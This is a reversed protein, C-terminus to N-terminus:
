VQGRRYRDPAAAFAAVCELSCFSWTTEAHTLSGAATGSPVPMRCVPDVALLQTATLQVLGAPIPEAVGRLLQLGLPQALLGAARVAATVAESHILQGGAALECLRAAVNVTHGLYDTGHEAFLRLVPGAHLGARALPAHPDASWDRVLDTLCQVLAVPDPSALLAGDGLHKVCEVADGLATRLTNVFEHQTDAARQDGHADTLSTFGALDVFAIAREVQESRPLENM